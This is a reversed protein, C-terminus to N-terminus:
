STTADIPGSACGSWFRPGRARKRAMSSSTCDEVLGSGELLAVCPSPWGDFFFCFRLLGVSLQSSHTSRLVLTPADHKRRSISASCRQLAVAAPRM